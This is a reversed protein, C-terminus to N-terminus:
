KQVVSGEDFIVSKYRQYLYSVGLLILGLGIFSFIRYLTELFSLDYIFIKLITFGFLVISIVRIGRVRRWIGTVMLVISYLLWVASLSLQRLNAIRILEAPLNLKDLTRRATFAAFEFYDRTEGTLLVFVLAAVVVQLTGIALRLGETRQLLRTHAVSVGVLVLLVIVRYNVLPDFMVIPEFAIGRVAGVCVALAFAVLGSYLIPPVQRRSGLVVLPLSYLGWILGLTMVRIFELHNVDVGTSESIRVRFYDVTEVTCLLFVLFCWGVHLLSQIVMGGKEKVDRMLLSSTALSLCVVSYALVRHNLILTFSDASAYTIGEETFILKLVAIGLLVLGSRWVYRLGAHTGGWVILLAELAWFMATTLGTFQITTSLALLTIATLLFQAQAEPALDRRRKVAVLTLFYVTGIGLITLGMWEHYEPNIIPYLAWPYFIANFGAVVRRLSFFATSGKSLRYVDLGYFLAWFVTLFYITQRLDEVSYYDTYWLFYILYTAGVTLPELVVWSEKKLLVMILGLDLLCVYTFLGVENAEGTSLMFPTLFGGAWGLVAVALSDYKFAQLFTVLTVGSMLAFAVVQPVLHYYNFSAYVSLYLTAIGAGILGQAFVQFGKGHSRAGVILLAVGAGVGIMVRMTETIWNNDFAYKLFFGVGIILALAGIRNLLKGGILAEWEERTRSPKPPVIAVSPAPTPPSPAAVPEQKPPAAVSVPAKTDPYRAVQIVTKGSETKLSGATDRLARISEELMAVKKTLTNTKGMYVLLLIIGLLPISCLGMIALTTFFEVSVELSTTPLVALIGPQTL